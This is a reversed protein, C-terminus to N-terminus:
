QRRSFQQQGMDPDLRLSSEPCGLREIVPPWSDDRDGGHSQGDPAKPTDKRFRSRAGARLSRVAGGM